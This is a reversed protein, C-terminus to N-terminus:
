ANACMPSSPVRGELDIMTAAEDWPITDVPRKPPAPCIPTSRPTIASEREGEDSMSIPWTSRTKRFSIAARNWGDGMLRTFIETVDADEVKVQLLARNNPDLTTEWLQEANMEGLGKYRQISLGKRGAALVADLLQSPRTISGDLDVPRAAAPGGRRPKRPWRNPNPWPAPAASSPPPAYVEAQEAALRALKRAEASILFAAEIKHYDTVGRWHRLFEVHGDETLV